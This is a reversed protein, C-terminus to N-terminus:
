ISRRYDVDWDEIRAASCDCAFGYSLSFFEVEKRLVDMVLSDHLDHPYLLRKWIPEAMENILVIEFATSPGYDSNWGTLVFKM